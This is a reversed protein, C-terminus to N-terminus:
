TELKKKKNSTEESSANKNENVNRRQSEQTSLYLSSNQSVCLHVNTM